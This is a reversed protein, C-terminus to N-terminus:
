RNARRRGPIIPEAILQRCVETVRDIITAVFRGGSEATAAEPYGVCGQNTRQGMDEAVYLGRLVDPLPQHDNRIEAERVLDPRFHMVMATEFECAHGMDKREGRALEALEREALEWYSAGTLLRDPYKPQLRRLAVRLTEINGGHGNLILFRKFDDDLFSTLLEMLLLIHTDVGVTM